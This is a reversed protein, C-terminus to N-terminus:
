SGRRKAGAASQRPPPPTAERQPCADSSAGSPKAIPLVLTKKREPAESGSSATSRAVWRSAM